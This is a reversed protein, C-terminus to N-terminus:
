FDKFDDDDLPIIQEHKVNKAKDKSGNHNSSRFQHGGSIPDDTLVHEFLHHINSSSHKKGMSIHNLPVHNEVPSPKFNTRGTGDNAEVIRILAEMTEKLERSQASLEESASASEEANAANAQTVKDMQAVAENVQDIGRAQENSAVAVEAILKVVKDNGESIEKLIEAVENSVHVGNESNKKSEELLVSTDKAAEASRQALNRVEEAVVAFGKGADGARAAEVAANLALLNTQFAIEDITKIINATEDSSAKIKEIAGSMREMAEMGKLASDKAAKAVVDAQNSNDANQKTMSAMEELSASTEELSSAQENAGEAMQQSASAVQNSADAVQASGKTMSDIINRFQEGTQELELTSFTSLGKFIDKFPRTISNSIVIGILVCLGLGVILLIWEVTKLQKSTKQALILDNSMLQKQDKMMAQLNTTLKYAIPAAKTGLWNNALNWEKGSRIEFMKPVLPEFETRAQAFAMFHRKQEPTLLNQSNQLDAFRRANKKWLATFKEKFKNDGSLLFARINALALGTTGRVDAMMGLLAKRKDTAPQELEIDIIDTIKEALISARPAAQTLLIKLAPQNEPTQAIDEIEKQYKKFEGLNSEINKLRNINEPNTWNKSLAKLNSFSKDIGENWAFSREEKFKNDGLIIWGRLAALSQNMGNLMEISAMATPSRLEVVRNTVNNMSNMMIMTSLVAILLVAGSLGFGLTIKTTLKMRKFM